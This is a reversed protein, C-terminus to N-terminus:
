LSVRVYPATVNTGIANFVKIQCFSGPKVKEWDEITSNLFHSHCDKQAHQQCKHLYGGQPHWSMEGFSVFYFDNFTILGVVGREINICVFLSKSLM